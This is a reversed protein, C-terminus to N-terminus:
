SLLTYLMLVSKIMQDVSTLAGGSYNTSFAPNIFGAIERILISRELKFAEKEEDTSLSEFVRESELQPFQPMSKLEVENHSFLWRVILLHNFLMHMIAQVQPNFGLDLLENVIKVTVDDNQLFTMTSELDSTGLETEEGQVFTLVSIVVLISYIEM